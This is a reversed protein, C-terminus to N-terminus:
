PNPHLLAILDALDQPSLKQELGEPMLSLGTGMLEEISQRLVTEQQNEARRLTISTPTESFILGTAIRGDDLVVTYQMFNPGVERNPDLIAVLLESPSRHSITALNPGVDHGRDGFRHCAACERQYVVQGRTADGALQLAPQYRAVIEQRTGSRSQEFLKTVRANLPGSTKRLLLQQRSAPIYTTPVVGQEVANVLAEYYAARGLLAEVVEGRLTPTYTKWESLLVIPTQRSELAALARIAALQMEKPQNPALLQKCVDVAEGDRELAIVDLALQRHEITAGPELVVAQASKVTARLATDGVSGISSWLRESKHGLGAFVSMRLWLAKEDSDVHNMREIIKHGSQWDRMEGVVTALDRALFPSSAEARWADDDFLELLLPGALSPRSSLVAARMWPADKDRRLIAVMAEAARSDDVEGLSLAAQFRVRVEADDALDLVCDLLSADRALRPEALRIAHERVGPSADALAVLLEDAELADLGELSWLAHLRAMPTEGDRLLKELLPVAAMDQREFLLRHATERWWADAYELCEVLEATTAKSLKPPKPPKFNPPALRYLRGRDRGSTLDLRAKLDDPMSWPHEITERYMDLVHLTGDPANVFNVPRFWNDTSAVFECKDEVRHSRFTVGSPEVVERHLLNGAVEGIFVNGYYAKPYASGRYITVGAASTVYGAAITESRPTRTNGSAALRDANIVRWPEPPSRRYVPIADGADAVDQLASALKFYPNRALYRAPMVVHQAPNRINCVFRDGWDDFSNGFRAGGSLLEFSPHRPDFCFDNKAMSVTKAKPTGPTAIQGGNHAGAGYIKHDLGWALNNILAQVNLKRFGTFVKRRVDARRDGDTDKLYWVDPTAAVFCGGDYLAIGSPWSLEEALIDSRDFTGDGDVDELIRVKGIPLDTTREVNPLDHSMDTYPYDNMEVVWARGDEDYAAAVPDTLLPEAAILEMRFGDRTEFSKPADSPELPAIRLSATPLPATPPAAEVSWHSVVILTSTALCLAVVLRRAVRPRHAKSLAM